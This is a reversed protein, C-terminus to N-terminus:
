TQSKSKISSCKGSPDVGYIFDNALHVANGASGGNGCIFVQQRTQAANLLVGALKEVPAWDFSDLQQQLSQKYTNILEIM